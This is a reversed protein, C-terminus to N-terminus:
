KNSEAFKMSITTYKELQEKTMTGKAHELKGTLEVQKTALSSLEATLSPDEKVKGNLEAYKKVVKDYDELMANVDVTGTKTETKVTTQTKNETGQSTKSEEKKGCGSILFVALTLLTIVFKM